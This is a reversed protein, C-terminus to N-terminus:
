GITYCIAVKCHIQYVPHYWCSYSTVLVWPVPMQVQSLHFLFLLFDLCSLEISVDLCQGYEAYRWVFMIDRGEWIHNPYAQHFEDVLYRANELQEALALRLLIYCNSALPFIYHLTWYHRWTNHIGQVVPKVIVDLIASHSVASTHSVVLLTFDKLLSIHFVNHNWM